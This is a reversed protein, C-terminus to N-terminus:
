DKNQAELWIELLNENSLGKLRNIAEALNYQVRRDKESSAMAVLENLIQNNGVGLRGLAQVSYYRIDSNDDKLRNLILGIARHEGIEGLAFVSWIIRNADTSDSLVKLIPESARKDKFLGLTRIAWWGIDTKDAIAAILPTIASEGFNLLAETIEDALYEHEDVRSYTRILRDIKAPENLTEYPEQDM